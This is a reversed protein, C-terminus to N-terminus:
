VEEIKSPAIVGMQERCRQIESHYAKSFGADILQDNLEKPKISHKTRILRRMLGSKTLSVGKEDIYVKKEGKNLSKKTVKTKKERKVPALSEKDILPDETNEVTQKVETIVDEPLAFLALLDESKLPEEERKPSKKALIADIDVHRKKLLSLAYELEEGEFKGFQVKVSLSITSLKSIKKQEEKSLSM